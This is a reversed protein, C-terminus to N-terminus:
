HPSQGRQGVFADQMLVGGGSQSISFVGGVQEANPGFFAGDMTGTASLSGASGTLPIDFSGDNSFPASGSVDFVSAKSIETSISSRGFDATLTFPLEALTRADYTATGSSPIGSPPTRDGYAFYVSNRDGTPTATGDANVTVTGWSWEGMAVYSLGIDFLLSESIQQGSPLEIAANQFSARAFDYDERLTKTGDSYVDYEKLNQGFFQQSDGYPNEYRYNPGGPNFDWSEVPVPLAVQKLNEPLFGSPAGLKYEFGGNVKSVDLQFEGATAFKSNFIAGSNGTRLAILDYNKARTAPSELWTREIDISTVTPTPTPTPTPPPPPPPISAVDGGGGGCASLVLCLPLAVTSTLSIRWDHGWANCSM